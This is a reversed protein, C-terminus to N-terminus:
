GDSGYRGYALYGLLALLFALAGLEILGGLLSLRAIVRDRTHVVLQRAVRAVSLGEVLAQLVSALTRDGRRAVGLDRQRGVLVDLVDEGAVGLDVLGGRCAALLSPILNTASRYRETPPRTRLKRIRGSDSVFKSALLLLYILNLFNIISAAITATARSAAEGARAWSSGATTASALAFMAPAPPAFASASHLSPTISAFAPPTTALAGHSGSGGLAAGAGAGGGGGFAAGAGAGAGAGASAFCSGALPPIPAGASKASPAPASSTPPPRSARLIM